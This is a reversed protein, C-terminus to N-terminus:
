GGIQLLCLFLAAVRRNVYREIGAFPPLLLLLGGILPVLIPLIPLHDMM